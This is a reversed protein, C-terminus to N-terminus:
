QLNMFNETAGSDVLTIIEARKSQSHIYTQVTMSKRTSIYVDSTDSRNVQSPETIPMTLTKPPPGQPSYTRALRQNKKWQRRSLTDQVTPPTEIVTRAILTTILNTKEQEPLTYIQNRLQTVDVLPKLVPTQFM